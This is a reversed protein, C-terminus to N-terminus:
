NSPIWRNPALWNGFVCLDPDGDGDLDGVEISSTQGHESGLNTGTVGNWPDITGNNLYVRNPQGWNGVLLDLHTDGNWYGLAVSTTRDADTTINRGTVGAWPNVTGDCGGGPFCQSLYVRSPGNWAGVVLDLDSDGDVDEIALSQVGLTDLDFGSWSDPVGTNLYVRSPQGWVNGVVLDKDGDDDVDRLAVAQTDYTATIEIGTANAWPNVTGDCTGIDDCQNLYLRNKEGWNGAVLDLDNDGDVDELAISRTDHADSTINFAPGTWPDVSGDNLYVRNIGSNGVVIDTHGNNDLDAVAIARSDAADATL